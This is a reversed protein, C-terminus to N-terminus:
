AMVAQRGAAAYAPTPSNGHYRRPRRTRDRKSDRKRPLPFAPSHYLAVLDDRTFTAGGVELMAGHLSVPAAEELAFRIAQAATAFTRSGQAMATHRDSGLYLEARAHYDQFTM